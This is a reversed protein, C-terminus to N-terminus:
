QTHYNVPLPSGVESIKNLDNANLITKPREPLNSFFFLFFFFAREQFDHKIPSHPQVAVQCLLRHFQPQHMNHSVDSFITLLLSADNYCMSIQFNQSSSRRRGFAHQGVFTRWMGNRESVVSSRIYSPQNQQRATIGGSSHKRQQLM